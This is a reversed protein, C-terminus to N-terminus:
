ESEGGLLCSVACAHGKRARVLRFSRVDLPLWAVLFGAMVLFAATSRLM